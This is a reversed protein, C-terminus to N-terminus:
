KAFHNKWEGVPLRLMQFLQNLHHGLIISLLLTITFIFVLMVENSFAVKEIGVYSFIVFFSSLFFAICLFFQVADIILFIIKKIM